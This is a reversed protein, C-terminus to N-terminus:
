DADFQRLEDLTNINRFADEDAFHVQAINLTAFWQNVRRGGSQLYAGLQPALSARALCFVPQRQPEEPDGSVAFAADAQQREMGDCLRPVLDLPLFPSDCPVTVLFATPCHTMAAHLGALPGPFGQMEDQFVQAGFERYRVLNRNANIMVRGVQPRLRELVHLAMPKGRLAQLGKDVEGMRSGRGGALIVGTIQEILM